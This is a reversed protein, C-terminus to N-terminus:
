KLCTLSNKLGDESIEKDDKESNHDNEIEVCLLYHLSILRPLFTIGDFGELADVPNKGDGNVIEWDAYHKRLLDLSERILAQNQPNLCRILESVTSNLSQLCTQAIDELNPDVPGEGLSAYLSSCASSHKAIKEKLSDCLEQDSAVKDM